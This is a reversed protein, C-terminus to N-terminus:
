DDLTDLLSIHAKQGSLSATILAFPKYNIEGSGVCWDILNKLSGPVGMAYEPTCIIIGDAKRIKSRLESVIKPINENDLDPDFCPLNILDLYMEFEFIDFGIKEIAKLYNLNSSSKRV